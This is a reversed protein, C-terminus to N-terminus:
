TDLTSCSTEKTQTAKEQARKNRKYEIRAARHKEYSARNHARAREPHAKQWERHKQLLVEHQAQWRAAAERKRREKIGMQRCPTCLRYPQRPVAVGCCGPVACTIALTQKRCSACITRHELRNWAQKDQRYLLILFGGCKACSSTVM